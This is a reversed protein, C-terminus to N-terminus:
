SSATSTVYHCVALAHCFIIITVYHCHETATAIHRLSTIGVSDHNLLDTGADHTVAIDRVHEKYVPRYIFGVQAEDQESLKSNRCADYKDVLTEYRM